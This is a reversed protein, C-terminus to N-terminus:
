LCTLCLTPRSKVLSKCKAAGALSTPPSSVRKDTPAAGEGSKGAGHRSMEPTIPLRLTDGGVGGEVGVMMLSDLSSFSDSTSFALTSNRNNRQQSVPTAAVLLQFYKEQEISSSAEGGSSVGPFIIFMEKTLNLSVLPSLLFIVSNDSNNNQM